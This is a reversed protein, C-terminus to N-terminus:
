FRIALDFNQGNRWVRATVTQGHRLGAVIRDLDRDTAVPQDAMSVLVDGAQLGARVAASAPEVRGIYAGRPLALGKKDGIRHADAIAAGLRPPRNARQGLLQDILPRNFGVVVQGDIMLVPVGQQGSVQVMRMAAERDRSVDYETFPIGRQQLYAKAQRCYGCTPTSYLQVTM